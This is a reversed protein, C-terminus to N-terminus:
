EEGKSQGLQQAIEESRFLDFQRQLIMVDETRATKDIKSLIKRLMDKVKINEERLDDVIKKMEQIEGFSKEREKILSEGILMVREKLIRQKEELDRIRMNIEAFFQQGSYQESYDEAMIKLLMQLKFLKGAGYEL